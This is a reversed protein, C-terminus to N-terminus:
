RGSTHDGHPGTGVTPTGHNTRTWDFNERFDQTWSCMAHEFNCDIKGAGLLIYLFTFLAVIM